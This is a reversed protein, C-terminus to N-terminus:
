FILRVHNLGAHDFLNNVPPSSFDFLIFHSGTRLLYKKSARHCQKERCPGSSEAHHKKSFALKWAGGGSQLNLTKPPLTRPHANRILGGQGRHGTHNQGVRCRLLVPGPCEGLSICQTSDCSNWLQLRELVSPSSLWAPLVQPSPSPPLLSHTERWLPSSTFFREPSYPSKQWRLRFIFFTSLFRYLYMLSLLVVTGLPELFVESHSLHLRTIKKFIINENELGYINM